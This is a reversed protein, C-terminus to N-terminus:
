GRALTIQSANFDQLRTMNGSQKDVNYVANPTEYRMAGFGLLQGTASCVLSQLGNNWAQGNLKLQALRIPSKQNSDLQVLTTDGDLGLLTTYLKGDPCQALNGSREDKPFKFKDIPTIEGTQLNIDVLTIPPTGNKKGVLGILRGDNTGLLSGLQQNQKLGSVILTKAPTDLFTIHTPTAQRRSTTIPTVALVLTGNSLSTFGSLIQNPGLLPTNKDGLVQAKGTILSQLVLDVNMDTPVSIDTSVSNSATNDLETTNVEPIATQSANIIPGSGIGVIDLSPTEALAKNALYSLGSVVTGALVLQGFERRSLKYNM